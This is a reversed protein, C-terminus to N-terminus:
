VDSGGILYVRGTGRVMSLMVASCCRVSSSDGCEACASAVVRMM